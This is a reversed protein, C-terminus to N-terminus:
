EGISAILFAMTESNKLSSYIVKGCNFVRSDIIFNDANFKVKRPNFIKYGGKMRVKGPLAKLIFSISELVPEPINDADYGLLEIIQNEKISCVEYNFEIEKVISQKLSILSDM